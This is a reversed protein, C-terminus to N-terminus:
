DSFFCYKKCPEEKVKYMAEDARKVLEEAISADEPYLSIGISAGVNCCIGDFIFPEALCSIFDQAVRAIKNRDSPRELLVCFEDGGLRAFTDSSRLRSQLRSAVREM